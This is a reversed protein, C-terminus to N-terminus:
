WMSSKPFFILYANWTHRTGQELCNWTTSNKFRYDLKDKSFSGVRLTKVRENLDIIRENMRQFIKVEGNIVRNDKRKGRKPSIVRGATVIVEPWAASQVLYWKAFEPGPSVLKDTTKDKPRDLCPKNTPIKRWLEVPPAIDGLSRSCTDQIRGSTHDYWCSKGEQIITQVLVHCPCASSTLVKPM